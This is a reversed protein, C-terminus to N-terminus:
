IVPEEKLEACIVQYIQDYITHQIKAQTMSYDPPFFDQLHSLKLRQAVTQVATRRSTRSFTWVGM